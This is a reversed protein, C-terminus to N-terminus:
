VDRLWKNLLFDCPETVTDVDMWDQEFGGYSRHRYGYRKEAKCCRLEVVIYKRLMRTRVPLTWDGLTSGVLLMGRDGLFNRVADETYTFDDDVGGIILGIDYEGSPTTFTVPKGKQAFAEELKEEVLTAAMRFSVRLLEAM